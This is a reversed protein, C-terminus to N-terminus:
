IVTCPIIQIREVPIKIFENDQKKFIFKKKLIQEKVSVSLPKSNIKNGNYYINIAKM